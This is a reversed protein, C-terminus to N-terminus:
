KANPYYGKYSKIKEEIDKQSVELEVGLCYGYFACKAEILQQKVNDVEKEQMAFVAELAAKMGINHAGEKDYADIALKLKDDTIM